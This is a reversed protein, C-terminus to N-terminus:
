HRVKALQVRRVVESDQSTLFPTRLTMCAAVATATYVCGLLAGYICLKGVRPMCPLASLHRGLPTLLGTTSDLAQIQQLLQEAALVSSESPVDPCRCLLAMSSSNSSGGSVGTSRQKESVTVLNNDNGMMAKVQLVVKELSVRLIEPVSHEPLKDFTGQTILRFCRGKQVRGTLMNVNACMIFVYIYICVYVIYMCVSYVYMYQICVYVIYM